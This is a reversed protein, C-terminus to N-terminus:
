GVEAVGLASVRQERLAAQAVFDAAPAAVPWSALEREVLAGLAEGFQQDANLCPIYSFVEGGAALFDDRVELAIEELTELCDVVFGPCIVDLKKVGQAGLTKVTPATYPQLWKARGFRSQFTVLYQDKSLNLAQALLRGTKHCECHYPDGLELSRQPVGHFSMLLKEGRGHQEWHRRVSSALAAIYADDDHFHKVTRLAPVDRWTRLQAFVADFVSATTAAAYQPYMPVVLLHDIGKARFDQLIKPMSPNGYRMALAVSVNFGKAELQKGLAQAQAQSHVFLPSGEETWISAYKSASKAPRVNLIIGRLILQWLVKPIEVVRTDSLFEKLYRKVAAATPADPTGLQALIVGVRTPAIANRHEFSASNHHSSYANM